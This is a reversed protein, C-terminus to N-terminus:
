IAPNGSRSFRLTQREPTRVVYDTESALLGKSSAWSGFVKIAESIRSPNTQLAEELCDIQGQRWRRV